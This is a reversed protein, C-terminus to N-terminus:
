PRLVDPMAYLGAKRGALWHAAELAGHAFIDRSQATHTFCLTEGAGYFTVDHTGVVAGVREATIIIEGRKPQEELSRGVVLCKPVVRQGWGAGIADALMLATGSPADKKASHHIDHIQVGWNLGLRAATEQVQHVLATVGLSFNGSRLVAMDNAAQRLAADQAETWGTTGTVLAKGGGKALFGVLSAAADSSSVDIVVDCAILTKPDAVALLGIPDTGALVGVDQGVAESGYRVMVARLSFRLDALALATIRRGLRGAGGHIGLTITSM